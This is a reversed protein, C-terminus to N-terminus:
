LGMLDCLARDLKTNFIELSLSDVDSSLGNWHKMISVMFIKEGLIEDSERQQLMHRTGRMKKGHVKSFPRARGETCDGLRTATPLSLTGGSRGGLSLLGLERHRRMYCVSWGRVVKTARCQVGEMDKRCVPFGM